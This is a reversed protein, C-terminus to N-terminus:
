MLGLGVITLGEYLGMKGDLKEYVDTLSGPTSTQVKSSNGDQVNIGQDMRIQLQCPILKIQDFKYPLHLCEFSVTPPKSM